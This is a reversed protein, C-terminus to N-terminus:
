FNKFCYYHFKNNKREVSCYYLLRDDVDHISVNISSGDFVHGRAYDLAEHKAKYLNSSRFIIDASNNYIHAIYTKM